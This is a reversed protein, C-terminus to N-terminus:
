ARCLAQRRSRLMGGALGFGGIMLAWSAPEPVAATPAAVLSINDVFPGIGDESLTGFYLKASGADQALFSLTALQFGENGNISLAGWLNEFAGDGFNEGQFTINRALGAGLFEFGFLFADNEDSQQSGEFEFNLTVLDGAQFDFVQKSILKGPGSAAGDLEVHAGYPDTIHPNEPASFLDVSGVVDWNAFGDYNPKSVGITTEADFNDSFNVAASATGASLATATVLGLFLTPLRLM